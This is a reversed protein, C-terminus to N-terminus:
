REINTSYTNKLLIFHTVKCLKDVVVMIFDHHKVTRLLGTIFDM